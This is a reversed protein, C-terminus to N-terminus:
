NLCGGKTRKTTTAQKSLLSALSTPLIRLNGRGQTILISLKKVSPFSTGSDVRQGRSGGFSGNKKLAPAADHDANLKLVSGNVFDQTRGQHLICTISKDFQIQCTLLISLILYQWNLALLTSDSNLSTGSSFWFPAM